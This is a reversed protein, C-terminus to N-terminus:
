ISVQIICVNETTVEADLQAVFCDFLWALGENSHLYVRM